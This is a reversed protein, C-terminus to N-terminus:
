KMGNANFLPGYKKDVGKIHDQLWNCLFKDVDISLGFKDRDFQEKFETVKREFDLHAKKHSDAEVYGFQEFCKEEFGFHTATYSVLGDLLKGLVMKGKGQSMAQDLDNVIEILKKHQKDIEGVNVSLSEDWSIM